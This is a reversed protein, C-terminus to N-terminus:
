SAMEETAAEVTVSETSSSGVQTGKASKMTATMNYSYGVADDSFGLYDYSYVKDSGDMGSYTLTMTKPNPVPQGKVTPIKLDVTSVAGTKDNGVTVTVSYSEEDSKKRAKIKRIIAM